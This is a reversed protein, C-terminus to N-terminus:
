STIGQLETNALRRQYFAIRAITGNWINGDSRNGIQMQTVIPVIAVVDTGVASGQTSLAFDNFKYAAALKMATNALWSSTSTTIDAQTVGGTNVNFFPRTTSVSRGFYMRNNASGDNISVAGPAAGPGSTWAPAACEAFLTGETQNYWRAFNNGIM